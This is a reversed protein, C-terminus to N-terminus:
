ITSITLTQENDSLNAEFNNMFLPIWLDFYCSRGSELTKSIEFNGHILNVLHENFLSKINLNKLTSRVTTQIYRKAVVSNAPDVPSDSFSSRKCILHNSTVISRRHPETKFGGFLATSSNQCAAQDVPDRAVSIEGTFGDSRLARKM